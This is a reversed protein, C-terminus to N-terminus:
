HRNGDIGARKETATSSGDGFRLYFHGPPAVLAGPGAGFYVGEICAFRYEGYGRAPPM